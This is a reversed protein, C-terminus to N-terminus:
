LKLNSKSAKRDQDLYDVDQDQYPQGGHKSGKIERSGAVDQELGNKM